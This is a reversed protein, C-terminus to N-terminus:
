ETSMKIEWRVHRDAGQIFRNAQYQIADTEEM